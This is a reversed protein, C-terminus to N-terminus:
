FKQINLAFYLSTSTPGFKWVLGDYFLSSKSFAISVPPIQFFLKIELTQGVTWELGDHFVSSESFAPNHGKKRTSLFCKSFRSSKSFSSKVIIMRNGQKLFAKLCLYFLIQSQQTKLDRGTRMYHPRFFNSANESHAYTKLNKRRLTSSVMVTRKRVPISISSYFTETFYLHSTIGRLFYIIYDEFKSLFSLIKVYRPKSPPPFSRRQLVPSLTPIKRENLLIM